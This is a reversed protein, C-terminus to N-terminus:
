YNSFNGPLHIKFETGENLKGSVLIKGQHLEVIRRCFSLGLGSGSNNSKNRSYDSQYFREWIKHIDEPPIGIGDDKIIVVIEEKERTLTIWINGGEKGYRIANDILNTFLRIMMNKDARYILSKPLIRHIKIQKNRASDELTDSVLIILSSLCLEEPQLPQKGQEMRALYLLQSTLATMHTTQVLISHLAETKEELTTDEMLAYECEAQIVSIPTRLEHSVDSTFEQERQFSQELREMM